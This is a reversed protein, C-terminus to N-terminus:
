LRGKTQGPDGDAATDGFTGGHQLAFSVHAVLPASAHRRMRRGHGRVGEDGVAVSERARDTSTWVGGM